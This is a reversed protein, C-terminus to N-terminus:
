PMPLTICTSRTWMPGHVMGPMRGIGRFQINFPQGLNEDKISTQLYDYQDTARLMTQLWAKLDAKIVGKTNPRFQAYEDSIEVPTGTTYELVKVELFYADRAVINVFGQAESIATYIPADIIIYTISPTGAIYFDLIEYADDYITTHNVYLFDGVALESTIDTAVEIIIGGGSGPNSYFTEFYYDVRQFKFICPHWVANWKSVQPITADITKQPRQTITVAM